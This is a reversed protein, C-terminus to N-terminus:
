RDRTKLDFKTHSILKVSPKLNRYGDIKLSFKLKM